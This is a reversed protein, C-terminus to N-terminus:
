IGKEIMAEMKEIRMRVNRRIDDVGNRNKAAAAMEQLIALQKKRNEPSSAIANYQGDLRRIAKLVEERTTM